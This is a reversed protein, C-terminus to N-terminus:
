FVNTIIGGDVQINQMGPPNTVIMIIGTWGNVGNAAFLQGDITGSVQFKNGNDTTTGILV